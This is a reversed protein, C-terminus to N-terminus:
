FHFSPHWPAVQSHSCSRGKEGQENRATAGAKATSRINKFSERIVAEQFHWQSYSCMACIVSAWQLFNLTKMVEPLALTVASFGWSCTFTGPQQRHAPLLHAPYLWASGPTERHALMGMPEWQLRVEQESWERFLLRHVAWLKWMWLSDWSVEM